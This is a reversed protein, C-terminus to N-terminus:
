SPGKTRRLLIADVSASILKMADVSGKTTGQSGKKKSGKGQDGSARKVMETMISPNNFPRHHLFRYYSALEMPANQVPTGSLCWRRYTNYTACAASKKSSANKVSQCEDLVIRFFNVESLAKIINVEKKKVAKDSKGSKGRKRKVVDDERLIGKAEMALIGYSTVVVDHQAIFKPDKKRNTDHYLLVDVGAAESCYQKIESVWQNVVSTPCVILTPMGKPSRETLILAIMQVTKGMGQLVM